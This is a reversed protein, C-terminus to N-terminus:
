EEEFYDLDVRKISYTIVETVGIGFDISFDALQQGDILIIRKEIRGVYDRADSSFQSTTIFVGKRARHGELSGAFAQVDPRGVTGKWRKAQIYVADLGLQDEKIIGDIGDDGTRGIAQGADKRSGGYGMTVLLDVVLNEFFRPSCSMIRSLLEQALERRLILYSAELLEHPTQQTSDAIALSSESPASSSRNQRISARFAAFEPIQDLLKLNIEAPNDAVVQQGRATIKFRGRGTSQLLGAKILHFRAWAIRNNLKTQTGSPLLEERDAPTLSFHDAVFDAADTTTHEQGDGTLRMLPLMLRQYDPVMDTVSVTYTDRILSKNAELGM